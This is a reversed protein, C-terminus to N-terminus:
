VCNSVFGSGFDSFTKEHCVIRDYFIGGASYGCKSQLIEIAQTEVEKKNMEKM